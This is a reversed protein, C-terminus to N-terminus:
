NQINEKWWNFVRTYGQDAGWDSASIWALEKRIEPPLEQVSKYGFDHQPEAYAHMFITRIQLEFTESLDDLLEWASTKSQPPIICILHNAEYGFEADVPPRRRKFEVTNFSGRLRDKVIDLDERFFVIIRGAVQDEIEALPIEYPPDNDPDLTKEVFSDTDKVRFNVRDIHEVGELARKTVSELKNSLEELIPLRAEYEEMLSNLM